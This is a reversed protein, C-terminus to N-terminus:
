ALPIERIECAEPLLPRDHYIDLVQCLGAVVFQDAIWIPQEPPNKVLQGGTATIAPPLERDRIMERLASPSLTHPVEDLLAISTLDTFGIARATERARKLGSTAVPTQGLDIGAETLVSSTKCAQAYGYPASLCEYRGPSPTGPTIVLVSM